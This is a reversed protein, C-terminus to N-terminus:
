AEKTFSYEENVKSEQFCRNLRVDYKEKRWNLQPEDVKLLERKGGVTTGFIISLITM